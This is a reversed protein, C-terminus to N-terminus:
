PRSKKRSAMGAMLYILAWAALHSSFGHPDQTPYVEVYDAGSIGREGITFLWPLLERPTLGNFDAPGGPNFGADTCDSCITVFVHKTGAHAVDLADAMVADMGRKQIDRITFIHAGMERAIAVQASSNRPGRIGVHAISSTKVRPIQAIRYIPSCRPLADAGFGPANDLHGDFHIIGIDGDAHDALARITEPTFSHDGGLTIPVSGQGYIHSMARYVSDMTGPADVPNVPIDGVDAVRLHDFIDIEYEPLFGGYRAAAHRISRPSLECGSFSGWTITGEWPVGAVVVDYGPALNRQPEVPVGLFSPTDGFVRPLSAKRGPVMPIDKLSM